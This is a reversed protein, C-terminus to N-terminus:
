NNKPGSMHRLNKEPPETQIRKYTVLKYKERTKSLNKHPSM